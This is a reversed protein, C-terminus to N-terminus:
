LTFRAFIEDIYRLYWDVDFAEDLESPTLPCGSDGELFERLATGSDWSLLSNRQVVEYADERMMGKAILKHLVRQSFVLGGLQDLNAAM